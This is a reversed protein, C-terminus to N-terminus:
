RSASRGLNSGAVKLIALSRAVTLGCLGGIDCVSVPNSACELIIDYVTLLLFLFVRHLSKDVVYEM